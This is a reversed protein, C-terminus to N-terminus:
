QPAETWARHLADQLAFPSDSGSWPLVISGAPPTERLACGLMRLLHEVNEPPPEPGIVLGQPRVTQRLLQEATRGDAPCELFPRPPEFPAESKGLHRAIFSLRAWWTDEAFLVRLNEPSIRPPPTELAALIEEETRVTRIGALPSTVITSAGSAVAHLARRDGRGGPSGFAYLRHQAYFPALSHARGVIRPQLSKPFSRRSPPEGLHDDYIVLPEIAFLHRRVELELASLGQDFDGVFAVKGDNESSPGFPHHLRPAFGPGMMGLRNPPVGAARFSELAAEDSTLVASLRSAIDFFVPAPSGGDWLVVPVDNYACWEVLRRLRAELDAYPRDSLLGWPGPQGALGAEILVFSPRRRTLLAKWAHPTLVTTPVCAHLEAALTRSGLFALEAEDPYGALLFDQEVERTTADSPRVLTRVNPRNAAMRQIKPRPPESNQFKPKDDRSRFATVLRPVLALTNWGPQKLALVQAQGIRYSLSGKTREYRTQAQLLQGYDKEIELLEVEIRLAANTIAELDETLSRNQEALMTREFRDLIYENKIRLTRGLPDAPGELRPLVGPEVMEELTKRPFHTGLEEIRRGFLGCPLARHNTKTAGLLEVHNKASIDVVAGGHRTPEALLIFWATGVPSSAMARHLDDLERDDGEGLTVVAIAPTPWNTRISLEQLDTREYVRYLDPPLSLYSELQSSPRSADLIASVEGDILRTLVDAVRM